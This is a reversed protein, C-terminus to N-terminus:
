VQEAAKIEQGQDFGWCKNCYDCYGRTFRGLHYDLLKKKKVEKSMEFDNLVRLDVIDDSVLEMGFAKEAAWQRSCYYYRGKSFFQCRGNCEMMHEYIGDTTNSVSICDKPFGMYLWREFKEITYRVRKEQFSDILKEIRNAYPITQSYDSIRVEVKDLSAIKEMTKSDPLVTGNTIIIIQGIQDKYEIDLEDLVEYLEHNLFPEGGVINLCGIYDVMQFLRQFDDRLDQIRYDQPESFYPMHTICNKCRLTCRETIPISLRGLNISRNKEWGRLMQFVDADAYDINEIMGLVSLSERIETYAKGAATVIILSKPFASVYTELTVIPIERYFKEQNKGNDIIATIEFENEFQSIYGKGQRGFGYIAIRKVDNWTKGDVMM